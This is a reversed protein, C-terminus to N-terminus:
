GFLRAESGALQLSLHLCSRRVSGLFRCRRTGTSTTSSANFWERLDHLRIIAKMERAPSAPGNAAHHAGRLPRGRDGCTTPDVGLVQQQLEEYAGAARSLVLVGDHSNVTPGEKAILDM